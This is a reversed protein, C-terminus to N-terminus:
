FCPRLGKTDTPEMTVERAGPCQWRCVQLEGATSIGLQPLKIKLNWFIILACGCCAGVVKPMRVRRYWDCLKICNQNLINKSYHCFNPTFCLSFYLFGLPKLEASYWCTITVQKHVVTQSNFALESSSVWRKILSAEKQLLNHNVPCPM